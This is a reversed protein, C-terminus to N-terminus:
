LEGNRSSGSASVNSLVKLGQSFAHHAVSPIFTPLEGVLQEQTLVPQTVTQMAELNDPEMFAIGDGKVDARSGDEEVVTRLRGGSTPASLGVTHM